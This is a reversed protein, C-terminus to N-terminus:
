AALKIMDKESINEPLTFVRAFRDKPTVEKKIQGVRKMIFHARETEGVPRVDFGRGGREIFVNYKLKDSFLVIEPVFAPILNVRFPDGITNKHLRVIEIAAVGHDDIYMPIVGGEGRRIKHVTEPCEIEININPWPNDNSVLPLKSVQVDHYHLTQRTRPDVKITAEEQSRSPVKCICVDGYDRMQTNQQVIGHQAFTDKLIAGNFLYHLEFGDIISAATIARMQPKNGDGSNLEYWSIGVYNGDPDMDMLANWLGKMPDNMENRINLNRARAQYARANPTSYTRHPHEVTEPLITKYRPSLILTDYESLELILQVLDDDPIREDQRVTRGGHSSSRKIMEYPHFPQHWETVPRTSDVIM